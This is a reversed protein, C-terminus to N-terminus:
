SGVAKRAEAVLRELTKEGIDHEVKDKFLGLHRMLSDLSGKKDWFKVKTLRSLEGDDDASTTVEVASIARRVDAPMEHLARLKGDTDFAEGVDVMALRLLERLVDDSKVEVRAARRALAEDVAQKVEVNALLRPGASHATKKSYGARIAAETANLDKLYEAVFANQKPTLAVRGLDGWAHVM